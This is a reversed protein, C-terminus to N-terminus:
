NQTINNYGNRTRDKFNPGNGEEAATQWYKRPYIINNTEKGQKHIYM